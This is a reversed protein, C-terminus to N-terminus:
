PNEISSFQFNVICALGSSTGHDAGDASRRVPLVPASIPSPGWGQEGTALGAQEEYASSSAGAGSLGDAVRTPDTAPPVPVTRGREIEVPLEVRFFAHSKRRILSDTRDTQNM